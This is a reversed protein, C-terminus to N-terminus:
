GARTALGARCPSGPCRRHPCHWGCKRFRTRFRRRSHSRGVWSLLELCPDQRTPRVQRRRVSRAWCRIRGGPQPIGRIHNRTLPPRAPVVMLDCASQFPPDLGLPVSEAGQKILGVCPTSNSAATRLSYCPPCVESVIVRRPQGVLHRYRQGTERSDGQFVHRPDPIGNHFRQQIEPRTSISRDPRRQRRDAM